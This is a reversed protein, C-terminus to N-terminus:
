WGGCHKDADTPITGPIHHSIAPDDSPPRFIRCRPNPAEEAITCRNTGPDLVIFFQACLAPTTVAMIGLGILLRMTLM